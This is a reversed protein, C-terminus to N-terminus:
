RIYMAHDFEIGKEIIFWGAFMDDADTRIHRAGESAPILDQMMKTGMMSEFRTGCPSVTEGLRIQRQGNLRTWTQPQTFM